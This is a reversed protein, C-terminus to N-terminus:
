SRCRRTRSGSWPLPNGTRACRASSGMSRDLAAAAARSGGRRAGVGAAAARVVAGGRAHVHVVCGLDGRSAAPRRHRAAERPPQKRAMRTDEFLPMARAASPLAGEHALLRQKRDLGGAYGTLTGDRGIVRHCPVIIGVPNRGIAAGVARSAAPRDIAAAIDGYCCTRGPEIRSCHVGCPRSSRRARRPRARRQRHAARALLRRALAEDRARARSRRRANRCPRRPSATAPRVVPGRARSRDGGRDDRGVAHRYPGARGRPKRPRHAERSNGTTMNREGLIAVVADRRVFAVAEVGAVADAALKAQRHGLAKLVGIDTSRSLMPGPWCACRSWSRLGNASARCIACRRWRRSSTALPTWGCGATSSRRLCAAFRASAHRCSAWRGSRITM